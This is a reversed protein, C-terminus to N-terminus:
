SKKVKKTTSIKKIKKTTKISKVSKISTASSSSKKNVKRTGTEKGYRDTTNGEKKQKEIREEVTRKQTLEEIQNQSYVSSLIQKPNNISKAIRDLSHSYNRGNSNIFRFAFYLSREYNLIHDPNRKVPDKKLIAKPYKTSAWDIFEMRSNYIKAYTYTFSPCNSFVRISAKTVDNDYKSLSQSNFEILVDYFIKKHSISPIKLHAVYYKEYLYYWKLTIAGQLIRYQDDLRKKTQGLMLATSPHDSPCHLYDTITM